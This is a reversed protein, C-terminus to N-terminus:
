SRRNSTCPSSLETLFVRDEKGLREATRLFKRCLSRDPSNNSCAFDLNIGFDCGVKLPTLSTEDVLSGTGDMSMSILVNKSERIRRVYQEVSGRTDVVYYFCTVERAQGLRHIRDVAQREVM